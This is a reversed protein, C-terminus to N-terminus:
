RGILRFCAEVQALKTNQHIEKIVREIVRRFVRDTIIIFLPESCDETEHSVQCGPQILQEIGVQFKHLVNLVQALTSVSDALKIRLYFCDAFEEIVDPKVLNDHRAPTDYIDSLIGRVITELSTGPCGFVQASGSSAQTYIMESGGRNQALFYSSPILCPEVCAKLINGDFSAMALMRLSYGLDKGSQIDRQNVATIGISQIDELSVQVAFIEAIQLILRNKSVLGHLSPNPNSIAAGDWQASATAESLSKNEKEMCSLIFSVVSDNQVIFREPLETLLPSLLMRLFPFTAGIAASFFTDKYKGQQIRSIALEADATVIKQTERTVPHRASFHIGTEVAAYFDDRSFSVWPRDVNEEGLVPSRLLEDYGLKKILQLLQEHWQPLNLFGPTKM